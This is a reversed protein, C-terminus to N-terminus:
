NMRTRDASITKLEGLHHRYWNVGAYMANIAHIEPKRRLLDLIDDLGFAPNGPDLEEYVRRIFAYDQPYDLTWRHSMSYDRSRTSGSGPEWLVNSLRFREPREWLYPTTHEREMPLSAERWATELSALSMVEADNGDPYSAPHLNSTYDSDGAGFREFVGDIISPDILPCDSPIKAVVTAGHELAARYHRDLLDSPHGRFVPIGAARCIAALPDDERRDTTAVTIAVDTKMRAVREVMRVIVPKGVLDLLVKGPLRTSGLRAQIVILNRRRDPM